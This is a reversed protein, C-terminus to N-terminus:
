AGRASLAGISVMEVTTDGVRVYHNPVETWAGTNFFRVGEVVRDEACHTHGCAVAAYGNEHAYQVANMRVHHCLFRYLFGFRKAYLAVHISEAGLRIRAQHILRFLIIFLRNRPTISDFDNGHAAYIRKGINFSPAFEIRAPDKLTMSEDHNGRLWVVRRHRSEARLRDLVEDDRATYHVHWRTLTDGHLVLTAGRPLGDLFRLFEAHHCYKSGLHVDSTIITDM